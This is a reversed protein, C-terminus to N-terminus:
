SVWGLHTDFEVHDAVFDRIAFVETPEVSGISALEDLAASEALKVLEELEYIEQANM